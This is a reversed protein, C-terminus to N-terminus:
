TKNGIISKSVLVSRRCTIIYSSYIIKITFINFYISIIACFPFYIGRFWVWDHICIIHFRLADLYIQLLLNALINSMASKCFARACHFSIARITNDLHFTSYDCKVRTFIDLKQCIKKNCTLKKWLCKDTKVYNVYKTLWIFLYWKSTMASSM